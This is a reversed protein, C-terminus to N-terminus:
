EGCWSKRGAVPQLVLGHTNTPLAGNAPLVSTDHCGGWLTVLDEEWFQSVVVAVAM